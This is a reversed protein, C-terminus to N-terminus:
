LARAVILIRVPQPMGAPPTRSITVQQVLRNIAADRAQDGTSRFVESREVSGSQAVWLKIGIRYSGAETRANKQLANQIDAQVVGAYARYRSQEDGKAPGEVRLTDLSLVPGSVSPPLSAATKDAFIPALVVDNADTYHVTLETGILLIQLAAEPTFLGEVATSRRGSALRSDYLVQVGSAASYAELASALPQSSIDYRV